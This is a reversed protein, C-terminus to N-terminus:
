IRAGQSVFIRISIICKPSEFSNFAGTFVLKCVALQLHGESVPMNQDQNQSVGYVGTVTSEMINKGSIVLVVELSWFQKFYISISHNLLNNCVASVDLFCLTENGELCGLAFQLNTIVICLIGM